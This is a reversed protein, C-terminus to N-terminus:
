RLLALLELRHDVRQELVHVQAPLDVLEGLLKALHERARPPVLTVVEGAVVWETQGVGHLHHAAQGVDVLQGVEETRGVRRRRQGLDVDVLGALEKAVIGRTAELTQRLQGLEQLLRAVDVRALTAHLERGFAHLLDALVRQAVDELVELLVPRALVLDKARTSRALAGELRLGVLEAVGELEVHM